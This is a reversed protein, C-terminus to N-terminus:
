LLYTISCLFTRGRSLTGADLWLHFRYRSSRSLCRHSLWTSISSPLTAWCHCLLIVILNKIKRAIRSDLHHMPIWTDGSISWVVDTHTESIPHRAQNTSVGIYGPLEWAVKNIIADLAM